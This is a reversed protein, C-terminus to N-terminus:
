HLSNLFHIIADDYKGRAVRSVNNHGAGEVFLSQKPGRAAAFLAQGHSFPVVDDRDGHIVLVPVNLKRMTRLNPFKEFPLVPAGTVVTFIGTFASELIIGAVPTTRALDMTPGSGVSRGYLVIRAPPVHLQDVAYRYAARIDQRARAATPRRATSLGYGRYDYGLVTFGHGQLRRLLGEVDGLDEANGHSFLIAYPAEPAPLYHLAISDDGSPAMLIPLSKRTYSAESPQFIVRDSFFVAFAVVALYVIALIKILSRITSRPRTPPAAPTESHNDM